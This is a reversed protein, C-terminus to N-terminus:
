AVSARNMEAIRQTEGEYTDWHRCNGGRDVAVTFRSGDLHVVRLLTVRAAPSEIAEITYGFDGWERTIYNAAASLQDPSVWLYTM